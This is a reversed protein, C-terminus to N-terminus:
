SCRSWSQDIFRAWTPEYVHKVHVGDQLIGARGRVFSPWDALCTRGRGKAISRMWGDITATNRTQRGPVMEAYPLVLMVRTTASLGNVVRALDGKGFGKPPPVAGLAVIVGTPQGHGSAYYDLRQRLLSIQRAPEGDITFTSRLRALEDTGRWTLSDGVMVTGGQAPQSGPTSVCKGLEYSHQPRWPCQVSSRESAETTLDSREAIAYLQLEQVRQPTLCEDFYGDAETLNVYVSRAGTCQAADYVATASRDPFSACYNVQPIWRRGLAQCQRSEITSVFGYDGQGKLQCAEAGYVKRYLRAGPVCRTRACGAGRTFARGLLDCEGQSLQNDYGGGAASAPATVLATPVPLCLAALAAVAARRLGEGVVLPRSSPM